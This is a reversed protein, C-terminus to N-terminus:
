KKNDDFFNFDDDDLDDQKDFYQVNLFMIKKELKESNLQDINVASSRSLNDEIREIIEAPMFEKYKNYFNLHNGYVKELPIIVSGAHAMEHLTTTLPILGVNNEYHEKMVQEAIDFGSIPEGDSTAILACAITQTMDYLSIPYHHMELSVPDSKIDIGPM